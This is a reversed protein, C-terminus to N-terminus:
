GGRLEKALAGYHLQRWEIKKPKKKVGTMLYGSPHYYDRDYVEGTRPNITDVRETKCQVCAFRVILLGNKDLSLGGKKKTGPRQWVHQTARCWSFNEDYESYNFASKAKKRAAM